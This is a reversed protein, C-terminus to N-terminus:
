KGKACHKRCRNATPRQQEGAPLSPKGAAMTKQKFIIKLSSRYWSEDIMSATPVCIPSLDQRFKAIPKPMTLIALDFDDFTKLSTFNPHIQVKKFKIKDGTSTDHTRVKGYIDLWYDSAFPSSIIM